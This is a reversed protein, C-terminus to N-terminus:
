ALNAMDKRNGYLVEDYTQLPRAELEFVIGHFVILCRRQNIFQPQMLITKVRDDNDLTEYFPFTWNKRRAFATCIVRENTGRSQWSRGDRFFIMILGEAFQAM